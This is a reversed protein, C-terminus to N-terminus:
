VPSPTSVEGPAPAPAPVPDGPAAVVTVEAQTRVGFWGLKPQHLAVRLLYRGPESPAELVVDVPTRYGPPVVRPLPVLANAIVGGDDGAQRDERAGGALPFWRAGFKVPRPLVTGLPRASRNVVHLQVPSATGAVIEAPLDGRVECRTADDADVRRGMSALEDATRPTVLRLAVDDPTPRRDAPRRETRHQEV